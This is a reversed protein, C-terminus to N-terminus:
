MWGYIHARLESNIVTWLYTNQYIYKQVSEKLPPKKKKQKKPKKKVEFAM